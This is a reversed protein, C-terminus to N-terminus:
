VLTVSLRPEAAQLEQFDADQAVVTLDHAL